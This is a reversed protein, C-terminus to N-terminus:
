HCPRTPESIHILSLSNYQEKQWNAGQKFREVECNPLSPLNDPNIIRDDIFLHSYKDKIANYAADEISVVSNTQQKITEREAFHDNTGDFSQFKDKITAPHESQYVFDVQEDTLSERTKFYQMRYVAAESETVEDWWEMSKERLTKENNMIKYNIYTKLDVWV